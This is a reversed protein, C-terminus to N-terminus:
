QSLCFREPFVSFLHETAVFGSYFGSTLNLDAQCLLLLLSLCFRFQDKKPRGAIQRCVHFAGDLTKVVQADLKDDPDLDDVCTMLMALRQRVHLRSSTSQTGTSAMSAMSDSRARMKENFYEAIEEM